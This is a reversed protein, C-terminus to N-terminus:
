GKGLRKQTKAILKEKCRKCVWIAQLTSNLRDVRKIPVLKSKHFTLKCEPCVVWDNDM